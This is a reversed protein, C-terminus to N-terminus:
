GQELRISEQRPKGKNQRTKRGAAESLLTEPMSLPAQELAAKNEKLIELYVEERYVSIDKPASIGLKVSDGRTELVTVEINNAIILKQGSKRSLILM